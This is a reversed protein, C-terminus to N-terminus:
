TTTSSCFVSRNWRSPGKNGRDTYRSASSGRGTGRPLTELRLGTRGHLRFLLSYYNKVHRLYPSYLASTRRSRHGSIGYKSCSWRRKPATGSARFLGTECKEGCGSAGASTLGRVTSGRGRRFRGPTLLVRRFQDANRAEGCGGEAGFGLAPRLVKEQGDFRDQVFAMRLPHREPPGDIGIAAALEAAFVAVRPVRV